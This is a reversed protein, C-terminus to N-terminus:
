EKQGSEYAHRQNTCPRSIGTSTHKDTVCGAFQRHRLHVVGEYMYTDRLNTPAESCIVAHNESECKTAWEFPQDMESHEVSEM